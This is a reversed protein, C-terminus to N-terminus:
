GLTCSSGNVDCRTPGAPTQSSMGFQVFVQVSQGGALPATGTITASSSTSVTSPASPANSWGAQYGSVSDPYEITVQWSQATAAGNDIVVRAIFGGPWSQQISYAATLDVGAPPAPPPSQPSAPTTATTAPSVPPSSAPRTTSGADDPTTPGSPASVSPGIVPYQTATPTDVASLPPGTHGPFVAMAVALVALALTALGAVAVAFRAREPRTMPPDLTDAPEAGWIPATDPGSAPTVVTHSGV